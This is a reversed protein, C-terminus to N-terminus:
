KGTFLATYDAACYPMFLEALPNGKRRHPVGIDKCILDHYKPMHLQFISARASTPPMWTRKWAQEREISAEMRGAAPLQIAGSLVQQLWKAQMAHTLINNFTSVESGVFAIDPLRPPLINRYLYLGDKELPLLKERVLRDFVDYNKAFGTGYVVLDADLETDNNLKVGTETYTEISAKVAKVQGTKLFDRFEYTLIQGGTFVDHELPTKPLMDGKLGFQFRFMFEVIRWWAWKIPMCMGHVWAIFPNVDYHTPLMFHGFRSYTGFKFPVLDLLYRPVPWHAHRYLLTSSDATKAAAVACDIASKGGGVVLVKKGVCAASDLFSNSHLIEGKFSEHNRALPLHPPWGYMGTAVVCFDFEESQTAGKIAEASAGAASTPAHKVRWGRKEGIPHLSVIATNFKVLDYLDNDRAFSQIYDAVAPGKPFLDADAPWPYGPFEYLERPVQLGFDAYNKRWVGAVDDTKEFIKCEIGVMKLLRAVQLGAVGAGIIAVKKVHTFDTNDGVVTGEKLRAALSRAKDTTPEILEAVGNVFEDCSLVGNGDDDFQEFARGEMAPHTLSSLENFELAISKCAANFSEGATLVEGAAHQIFIQEAIKKTNGANAHKAEYKPEDEFINYALCRVSPASLRSRGALQSLRRSLM